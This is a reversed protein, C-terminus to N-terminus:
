ANTFHIGANALRDFAVTNMWEDEYAGMYYSADDMICFLINPKEEQQRAYAQCVVLGLLVLGLIKNLQTQIIKLNM